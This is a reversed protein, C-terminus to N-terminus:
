PGDLALALAAGLLAQATGPLPFFTYNEYLQL